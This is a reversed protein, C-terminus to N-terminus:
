YKIAAVTVSPIPDCKVHVNGNEDNFRDTAFVGFYREEGSPIVVQVNHLEGHNCERQATITVTTSGIYDNKVHIYTDGQNEFTDGSFSAPSFVPKSGEATVKQVTLQAM